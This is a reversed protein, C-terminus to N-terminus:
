KEMLLKLIIGFIQINSTLEMPVILPELRYITLQTSPFLTLIPFKEIFYFFGNPIEIKIKINNPLYFLEENKEYIKTILISFLFELM